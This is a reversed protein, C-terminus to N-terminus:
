LDCVRHAAELAKLESETEPLLVPSRGVALEGPVDGDHAYASAFRILAAACPPDTPDTPSSCFTYLEEPTLWGAVNQLMTALQFMADMDGLRYHESVVAHRAFRKLSDDYRMEPRALAFSALDEPRPMLTAVRMVPVHTAMADHLLPVDAAHLCLVHGEPHASRFRGARGAIQRVEPATLRRTCTGDFKHMSTFIIRRINLNLGM